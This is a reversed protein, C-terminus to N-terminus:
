KMVQRPKMGVFGLGNGRRSSELVARLRTTFAKRGPRDREDIHELSCWGIFAAYLDRAHVWLGPEPDCGSVLFEQIVDSECRWEDVASRVEAPPNLGQRQWALCGALLWNLIGSGEARLKSALERDAEEASFQRNFPVLLARRWFGHSTDSVRPRENFLFVLKAVPVFSFPEGYLPRASIRDEGTLAKLRAEDFRATVRSEAATVLRRGPLMALDPTASSGQQAGGATFSVFPLTVTYTGLVHQLTTALLTKGNSGSGHFCFFVQERTLGSAIYGFMRQVFAILAENDEFVEALFRLFRPCRAQHDFAVDAQLALYDDPVGRRFSGDRLDVM